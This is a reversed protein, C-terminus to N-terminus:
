PNRALVAHFTRASTLNATQACVIVVIDHTFHLSEGDFRLLGVVQLHCDLGLNLGLFLHNVVCELNFDEVPQDLVDAQKPLHLVVLEFVQLHVQRLVTSGSHHERVEDVPEGASVVRDFADPSIRM